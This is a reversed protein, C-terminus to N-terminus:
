SKWRGVIIKLDVTVSDLGREYVKEIGRVDEGWALPTMKVFHPLIDEELAFEYNIKKTSVINLNQSFHEVVRKNSYRAEERGEFMIERLEKLYGAEPVVKIVIGSDKLVRRFEGYNAPSLINLIVDFSGDSFPLRALDAVCWIIRSDSQAALNISDKSIDVGTFFCGEKERLRQYIGYLHSGEGCGADIINIKKENVSISHCEIIRSLEEILPNYFGVKCTKHRAEFLERSYVSKQAGSLLNLYGKKAIDFTHRSQCVMSGSDEMVMPMWCLPCRFLNEHERIIFKARDKKKITSDNM